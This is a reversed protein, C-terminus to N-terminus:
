LEFALLYGEPAFGLKLLSAARNREPAIDSAMVLHHGRPISALINSLLFETVETTIPESADSVMHVGVWRPESDNYPPICLMRYDVGRYFMQAIYAGSRLLTAVQSSEMNELHEYYDDGEPTGRDPPPMLSFEGVLEADKQQATYTVSVYDLGFALLSEEQHTIWKTLSTRGMVELLLKAGGALDDGDVCCISSLEAQHTDDGVLALGVMENGRCLAFFRVVSGINKRREKLAVAAHYFDEYGRASMWETNFVNKTHEIVSLPLM